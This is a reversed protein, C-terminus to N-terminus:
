SQGSFLRDTKESFAYAIIDSFFKDSSFMKKTQIKIICKFLM